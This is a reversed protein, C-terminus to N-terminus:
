HSRIQEKTQVIKLGMARTAQETTQRTKEILDKPSLDKTRAYSEERVKHIWELSKYEMKGM